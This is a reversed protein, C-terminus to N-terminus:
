RETIWLDRGGWLGQVDLLVYRETAPAWARPPRAKTGARPQSVGMSAATNARISRKSRKSRKSGQPGCALSLAMTGILAAYGVLKM